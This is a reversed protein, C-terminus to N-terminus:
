LKGLWAEYAELVTAGKYSVTRAPQLPPQPLYEIVLEVPGSM